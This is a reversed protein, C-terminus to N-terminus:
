KVSFQVSMILCVVLTFANHAAVTTFIFMQEVLRRAIRAIDCIYSTLPRSVYVAYHDNKISDASNERNRIKSNGLM